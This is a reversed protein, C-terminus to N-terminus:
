CVYFNYFMFYLFMFTKTNWEGIGGYQDDVLLDLDPDGRFDTDVYVYDEIMLIQEDLWWFFATEFKVKSRSGGHHSMVEVWRLMHPDREKFETFAVQPRLHPLRKFFFSVLITGYGFQKLEGRRCMTLHEKFTVLLAEAWNFVTPAMAELSYIM